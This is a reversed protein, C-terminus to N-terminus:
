DIKDLNGNLIFSEGKKTKFTVVKNGYRVQCSHGRRSHITTSALKRNQWKIDVEFGSRARLGKINGMSWVKPLAPLLHIIGEHSQLLMEAIGATCGSSGDVQLTTYCKSFLNTCTNQAVLNRFLRYATDGEYMRAWLCMQWTMGFGTGGEGRM